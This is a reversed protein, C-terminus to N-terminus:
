ISIDVYIGKTTSTVAGGMQHIMSDLLDSSALQISRGAMNPQSNSPWRPVQDTYQRYTQDIRYASAGSSQSRTSRREGNGDLYQPINHDVNIPRRFKGHMSQQVNIGNVNNM